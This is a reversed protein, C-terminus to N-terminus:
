DGAARAADVRSHWAWATGLISDLDSVRAQWGLSARVRAVDAVLVPPDGARRPM